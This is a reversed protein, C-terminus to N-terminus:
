SVISNLDDYQKRLHLVMFGQEVGFPEWGREGLERTISLFVSAENDGLKEIIVFSTPTKEKLKANPRLKRILAVVLEYANIDTTMVSMEAGSSFLRMYGYRSM